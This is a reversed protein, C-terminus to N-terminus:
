FFFNKITTSPTIKVFFLIFQAQFSKWNTDKFLNIKINMENHYWIQLNKVQQNISKPKMTKKGSVKSLIYRTFIDEQDYENLKRNSYEELRKKKEEENIFFYKNKDPIPFEEFLKTTNFNTNIFENLQKIISKIAKKTSNSLVNPDLEYINQEVVQNKTSKKKISTKPM